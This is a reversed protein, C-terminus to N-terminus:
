QIYGTESSRLDDLDPQVVELCGLGLNWFFPQTRAETDHRPGTPQVPAWSPPPSSLLQYQIRSWAGLYATAGPQSGAERWLRWRQLTPWTGLPGYWDVTYRGQVTRFRACPNSIESCNFTLCSRLWFLYSPTTGRPGKTSSRITRTRNRLVGGWFLCQKYAVRVTM